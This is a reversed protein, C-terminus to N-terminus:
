VIGELETKQNTLTLEKLLKRLKILEKILNNDAETVPRKALLTYLAEALEADLNRADYIM